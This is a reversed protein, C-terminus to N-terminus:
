VLATDSCTLFLDDEANKKDDPSICVGIWSNYQCWNCPQNDEDTTQGCAEASTSEVCKLSFSKDVELQESSVLNTFDEEYASNGCTVGLESLTDVDDVSTCFGIMGQVTCWTCEDETAPSCVDAGQVSRKACDWSFHFGEAGEEYSALRAKIEERHAKLRERGEKVHERFVSAGHEAAKMGKEFAHQFPNPPLNERDHLFGTQYKEIAEKHHTFVKELNIGRIGKNAQAEDVKQAESLNFLVGVVSLYFLAIHSVKNYIM